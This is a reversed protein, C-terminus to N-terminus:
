KPGGEDTGAPADGGASKTEMEAERLSCMRDYALALALAFIILGFGYVMALNLGWFIIIEYTKISFLGIAVFGLYVLAYVIFLKVGLQAKYDGALDPGDDKPAPEHLM